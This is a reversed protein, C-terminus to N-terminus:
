TQEVNCLRRYLQAHLKIMKSRPYWESIRGRARGSLESALASDDLLRAIQRALEMADGVGFTLGADGLVEAFCGVNSAVVPLGRSMNEALVLGFVEGALSPVVVISAKAFATDIDATAIRGAFRVVSSLELKKALAESAVREPGNGIVQLEFV